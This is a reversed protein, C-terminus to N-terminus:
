RLEVLRAASEVLGQARLTELYEDFTKPPNKLRNRAIEISRFVQQSDQNMLSLLFQDPHQALIGYRDLIEAPFDKLNFTVIVQAQSAIAAALVHADDPDPLPALTPILSEFEVVLSDPVSRSMLDRTKQLQEPQIDPRNILLNRIWEDHIKETWKAKFFRATALQVLLDRLTAPYLVCADYIVTLSTAM